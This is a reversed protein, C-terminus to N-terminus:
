TRCSSYRWCSLFGPSYHSYGVEAERFFQQPSPPLCRARGCSELASGHVQAPMLEHPSGGSANWSFWFAAAAITAVTAFGLALWTCRSRWDASRRNEREAFVARWGIALLTAPVSFPIIITTGGITTGFALLFIGMLEQYTAFDSLYRMTGVPNWFGSRVAPQLESMRPLDVLVPSPESFCMPESICALM